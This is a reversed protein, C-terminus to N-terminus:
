TAELVAIQELLRNRETEVADCRAWARVLEKELSGVRENLKAIEVRFMDVLESAASTITSAADADFAGAEADNRKSSAVWGLVAAVAVGIGTAAQEVWPPLM